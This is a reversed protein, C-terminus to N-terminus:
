AAQIRRRRFPKALLRVLGYGAVAGAGACAFGETTVPIAPEFASWARQAIRSDFDGAFVALRGFPGATEFGALQDALKERRVITQNIARGRDRVLPDGNAELAAIAKRSDMGASAAEANFQAVIATLEDLAGGLRQRYQQAFEPLQSAVLGCLLGFGLALRRLVLM